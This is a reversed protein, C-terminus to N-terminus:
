SLRTVTRQVVPEKESFPSLAIAATDILVDPNTYPELCTFVLTDTMQEKRYIQHHQIGSKRGKCADMFFNM